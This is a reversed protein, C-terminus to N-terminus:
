RCGINPAWWANRAPATAAPRTVQNVKRGENRNMRAPPGSTSDVWLSSFNVAGSVPIVAATTPYDEVKRQEEAVVHQPRVPEIAREVPGRRHYREGRSHRQEAVLAPHYVHQDAAGNGPEGKVKGSISGIM